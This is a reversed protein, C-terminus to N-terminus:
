ITLSECLIHNTLQCLGEWESAILPDGIVQLLFFGTWISLIIRSLFSANISEVQGLQIRRQIHEELINLSPQVLQKYYRDRLDSDALIESLIAQQMAGNEAISSKRYQFMAQFFSCLDEDLSEALQAELSITESLQSLIGFLLDNKSDFYDYLAGESIDVAEAIERTTTRHFGKQAFLKAATELIQEKRAAIKRERRSTMQNESM